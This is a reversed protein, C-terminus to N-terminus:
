PLGEPTPLLLIGILVAGAALLGWYTTLFSRQRIVAVPALDASAQQAISMFPEWLGCSRRLCDRTAACGAKLSILLIAAQAPSFGGPASAAWLRRPGCAKM